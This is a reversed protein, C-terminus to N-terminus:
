ITYLYLTLTLHRLRDSDLPRELVGPYVAPVVAHAGVPDREHDPLDRPRRPLFPRHAGRADLAASLGSHRRSRFLPICLRAPQWVAQWVNGDTRERGHGQRSVVIM